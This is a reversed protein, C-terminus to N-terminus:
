PQPGDNVNALPQVRAHGALRAGFTCQPMSNNGISAALTIRGPAVGLFRAM